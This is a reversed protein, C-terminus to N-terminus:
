SSVIGKAAAYVRKYREFDRRYIARHRSDPSYARKTRVLSKVASKVSDYAGCATGALIATGVTGAESVKLTVVKREMMNAKLQLFRESKALGGVARLERVTIGAKELGELNVMMEYTIGELISKL